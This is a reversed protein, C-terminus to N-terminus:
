PASPRRSGQVSDYVRMIGSIMADYSFTEVMLKRGAAGMRARLNADGLLTRFAGAMAASNAFPVILGSVGDNVYEPPGGSDTGIAPCGSASAELLVNGSAETISALVFVDAAAFYQPIRDRSIKGLFQVRNTIGLQQALAQLEDLQPGVGGVVLTFEHEPAIEALAPLVYQLGKEPILGCVSLILNGQIGLSRKLAERDSVPAFKSIDVGKPVTIARTADAGLELGLNRMYDSVYTTRNARPLLRFLAREFFPDVRMGQYLNGDYPIDTVLDSGRFSAILPVGAISASVLGGLGDPFAFHSHIIDARERKAVDAVFLEFRLLFLLLKIERPSLSALYHAFRPLNLLARARGMSKSEHQMSRVQIGRIVCDTPHESSPVVIEVGREHLAVLEEDVFSYATLGGPQTAPDVLAIIKM